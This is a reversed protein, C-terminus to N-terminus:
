IPRYYVTAVAVFVVATVIVMFLGAQNRKRYGIGALASLALWCVLKVIAWVPFGYQFKHLLGVGSVLQVISAIGTIMLVKKRTEPAGAFGYFIGGTLIILSVVHLVHYFAPTM